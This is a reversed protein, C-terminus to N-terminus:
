VREERSLQEMNIEAVAVRWAASYREDHLNQLSVFRQPQGVHRLSDITSEDPHTRIPSKSRALCAGKITASM